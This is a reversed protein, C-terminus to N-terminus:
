RYGNNKSNPNSGDTAKLLYVIASKYRCQANRWWESRFNFLNNIWDAIPNSIWRRMCRVNGQLWEIINKKKKALHWAYPVCRGAQHQQKALAFMTTISFLKSENTWENASSWCWCYMYKNHFSKGKLLSTAAFSNRPLCAIFFIKGRKQM